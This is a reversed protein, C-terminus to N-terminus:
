LKQKKKGKNIQYTFIQLKIQLKQWLFTFIKLHKAMQMKENALQLRNKLWNEHVHELNQKQYNWSVLLKNSM